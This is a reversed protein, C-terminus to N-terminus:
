QMSHNNVTMTLFSPPILGQYYYGLETFVGQFLPRNYYKISHDVGNSSKSIGANDCSAVSLALIFILTISLTRGQM